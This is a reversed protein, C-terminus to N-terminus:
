DLDDYRLINQHDSSGRTNIWASFTMSQSQDMHLGVADGLNFWDNSGDFDLSGDVQGAVQDTTTMGGNMTGENSNSTSDAIQPASGSPDEKLHWVGQYNNDWVGAVGNSTVDGQFTGISSNGYFLYISTTAVLSEVRVWAIIEGSTDVYHEIEHALQTTGAQVSTFIIDYGNANEVDGGNTVTRLDLLTEDILVPFNTHPGGIVEADVFNVERRYDYGNPFQAEAPTFIGSVVLLVLGLLLRGWVRSNDNGTTTAKATM